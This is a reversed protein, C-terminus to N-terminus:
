TKECNVFFTYVMSAKQATDHSGAFLFNKRGLVIPRIVNKVLNNDIGLNGDYLYTSLNDWRSQSYVFAKGIKSKPLTVKIQTFM